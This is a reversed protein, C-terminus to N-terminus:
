KPDSRSQSLSWSPVTRYLPERMLAFLSSSGMRMFSMAVSAVKVRLLVTFGTRIRLGGPPRKASEDAILPRRIARDLTFGLRQLQCSCFGDNERRMKERPAASRSVNGASKREGAIAWIGDPTMEGDLTGWREEDTVDDLM